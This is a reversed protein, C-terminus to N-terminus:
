ILDAESTRALGKNHAYCHSAPLLTEFDHHADCRFKNVKNSLHAKYMNVFLEFARIAGFQVPYLRQSPQKFTPRGRLGDNIALSDIKRFSASLITVILDQTTSHFSRRQDSPPARPDKMPSPLLSSSIPSFSTASPM